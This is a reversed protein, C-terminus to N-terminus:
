KRRKGQRSTCSVVTQWRSIFHERGLKVAWQGSVSHLASRRCRLVQCAASLPARVQNAALIFCVQLVSFLKFDTKYWVHIEFWSPAVERSVIMIDTSRPETQAELFSGLKSEAEKSAAKLASWCLSAATSSCHWSFICGVCCRCISWLFNAQIEQNRKLFAQAHSSM